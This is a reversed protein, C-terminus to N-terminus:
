QWSCAGRKERAVLDHVACDPFVFLLFFPLWFGTCKRTFAVLLKRTRRCPPTFFFVISADHTYIWSWCTLTIVTAQRWTVRLILPVFYLSCGVLPAFDTAKRSRLCTPLRLCYWQQNSTTLWSSLACRPLRRPEIIPKLIPEARFFPSRRRSQRRVM